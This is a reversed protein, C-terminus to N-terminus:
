SPDRYGLQASVAAAYHTVLQGLPAFASDPIKRAPGSVSLAAFVRGSLNRIPAGVCRVGISHEENDIAYGRKRVEDLERLLATPDVITHTTYQRLGLAIIKSILAPPQFALVAKGTSTCHVPAAEIVVTTNARERDHGTRNIITSQVGDFVCLHVSLGSVKTLAEVFSKAERQLDMTNLVITGYEFLKIGLRYHDRVRDRELLGCDRLTSIIRHATGRPLGTQRAIEAVSLNRERTSFCDLVAVAKEISRVTDDRRGAEQASDAPGQDDQPLDNM